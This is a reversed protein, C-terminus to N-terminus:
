HIIFTCMRLDFRHADCLYSYGGQGQYGGLIVLEDQNLAYSLHGARASPINSSNNNNSHTAVSTSLCRWTHTKLHFQWLDNLFDSRGTQGGFVYMMADKEESNNNSEHRICL